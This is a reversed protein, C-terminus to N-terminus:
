IDKIQQLLLPMNEFTIDDSGLDFADTIAEELIIIADTEVTALSGDDTDIDGMRTLVVMAAKEIIGKMKDKMKDKMAKAGATSYTM